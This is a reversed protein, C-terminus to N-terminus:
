ESARKTEFPIFLCAGIFVLTYVIVKIMGAGAIVHLNSWDLSAPNLIVCLGALGSAVGVLKLAGLRETRAAGAALADAHLQAM